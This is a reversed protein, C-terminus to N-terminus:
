SLDTGHGRCESGARSDGVELERIVGAARGPEALDLVRPRAPVREPHAALLDDVTVYLATALTDLDTDM